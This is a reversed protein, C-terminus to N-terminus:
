AEHLQSRVKMCWVRFCEKILLRVSLSTCGLGTSRPSGPSPLSGPPREVLRVVTRVPKSPANRAKRFQEQMAQREAEMDAATMVPRKAGGSGSEAMWPPQHGGGGAGAHSPDGDSVGAPERRGDRSDQDRGGDRHGGGQPGRGDRQQQQASGQRQPGIPQGM